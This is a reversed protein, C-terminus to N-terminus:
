FSFFINIVTKHSTSLKVFSFIFNPNNKCGRGRDYGSGLGGKPNKVKSIAACTRVCTLLDQYLHMCIPLDLTSHIRPLSDMINYFM